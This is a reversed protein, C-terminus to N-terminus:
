SCHDCSKPCGSQIYKYQCWKKIRTERKRMWKCNRRKKGFNFKKSNPSDMCRPSPLAQPGTPASTPFPTRVMFESIFPTAYNMQKVCNQGENGVPRGNYTVQSDDTSYRSIRPCGGACDYSM